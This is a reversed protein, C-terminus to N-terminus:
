EHDHGEHDGHAEAAAAADGHCSGDCTADGCCCAAAEKPACCSHDALCAGGEVQCGVAEAVVEVAADETVVEEVAVDTATGETTSAGGCAAFVSLSGVVLLYMLKKM